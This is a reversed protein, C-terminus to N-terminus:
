DDTLIEPDALKTDSQNLQDRSLLATASQNDDNLSDQPHPRIWAYVVRGLFVVLSVFLGCSLGFLFQNLVFFQVFVNKPRPDERLLGSLLMSAIFAISFSIQYSKGFVLVRKIDPLRLQKRRVGRQDSAQVEIAEEKPGYESEFQAPDRLLAFYIPRLFHVLGFAFFGAYIGSMAGIMPIFVLVFCVWAVWAVQDHLRDVQHISLFLPFDWGALQLVDALIGLVFGAIVGIRVFRTNTAQNGKRRAISWRQAALSGDPENNAPQHQIQEVPNM